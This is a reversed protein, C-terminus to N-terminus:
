YKKIRQKALWFLRKIQQTLNENIFVRETGQVSFKKLDLNRTLKRNAFIKHGIDRGVFCVIIPAYSKSSKRTNDASSSQVPLRHSTSINEPKLNIEVLKALETVIHNTNEGETYLIGM